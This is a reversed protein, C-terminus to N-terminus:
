NLSRLEYSKSQAQAEREKSWRLVLLLGSDLLQKRFSVEKMVEDSTLVQLGRNGQVCWRFRAWVTKVRLVIIILISDAIIGNKCM